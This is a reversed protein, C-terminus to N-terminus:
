GAKIRLEVDEDIEGDKKIISGLYYFSDIQAIEQAEIRVITEARQIHGSLNCDM